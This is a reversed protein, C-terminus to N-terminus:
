RFRRYQLEREDPMKVPTAPLPKVELPYFEWACFMLKNPFSQELQAQSEAEYVGYEYRSENGCADGFCAFVKFLM